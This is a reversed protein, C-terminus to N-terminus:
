ENIVGIFTHAVKHTCLKSYGVFFRVGRETNESINGYEVEGFMVRSADMYLIDGFSNPSMEYYANNQPKNHMLRPPEYMALHLEDYKKYPTETVEQYTLLNPPVGGYNLTTAGGPPNVYNTVDAPMGGIWDGSNAFDQAESGDHDFHHVEAWVPVNDVPYPMGKKPFPGADRASNIYNTAANYTWIDYWNPDLAANRNVAETVIVKDFQERYGALISNRQCMPVIFCQNIQKALKQTTIRKHSYYRSRSLQGTASFVAGYNAYPTGYGLDRGVISSHIEMPAIEQRHDFDTSYFEGELGTLGIYKTQEWSGVIMEDQFTGEVEKVVKRDDHFNKIVKLSNGVYYAYVITDVKPVRISSNMDIRPAFYMSIVGDLLPEPIKLTGGSFLYGQNTLAIHGQHIAIPPCVYSDWFTVESENFANSARSLIVDVEVRRLKYKISAATQYYEARSLLDYLNSMYASIMRSQEATLDALTREHSWGHDQAAALNLSIQYTYGYCFGNKYDYCTNILNCGDQDCSWGTVSSYASHQYFDATDCVKIIAGARVWRDFEQGQPFGEGSPMGGFRDLIKGIEQDGVESIYDHFATTCTAPIMPLPMVWVGNSSIQVLWPKRKVDFSVLHTNFFMFQYLIRGETDVKGSCAPLRVQHLEQQIRERINAPLEFHAQEIPDQPLQDMDQRGYGSIVQVAEAMAGSFWSAKLKDYQSILLNEESIGRLGEPVFFVKMVETYPCRFRKLKVAGGIRTRYKGLRLQCMDTMKLEIGSNTRDWGDDICGSFLMPIDLPALHDTLHPSQQQVPKYAIARFVGGADQVIVVGGDPLERTYKLANLQTVEKYNTVTQCCHDIFVKDKETLDGGYTALGYPRPKHM